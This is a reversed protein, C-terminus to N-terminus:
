DETKRFIKDFCEKCFEINGWPENNCNEALCQRGSVYLVDSLSIIECNGSMPYTGKKYMIRDAARVEMPNRKTGEGVEIVLGEKFKSTIKVSDPIILISGQTIQKEEKPRVAIGLNM